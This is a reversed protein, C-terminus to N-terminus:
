VAERFGMVWPGSWHTTAPLEPTNNDRLRVRITTAPSLIDGVELPVLPWLQIMQGSPQATVIFLRDGSRVYAGRRLGGPSSNLNYVSGIISSIRTVADITGRGRLPLEVFNESGNLAALMSEFEDADEGKLVGFRVVGSWLGYGRNLIKVGGTSPIPHQIQGPVSPSLTMEIMRANAVYPINAM